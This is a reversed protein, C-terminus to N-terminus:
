SIAKFRAFDDSHNSCQTFGAEPLHRGGCFPCLVTGSVAPLEIKGLNVLLLFQSFVYDSPWPYVDPQFQGLREKWVHHVCEVGLAQELSMEEVSRGWFIAFRGDALATIGALPTGGYLFPELVAKFASDELLKHTIVMQSGSSASGIYLAGAGSMVTLLRQVRARELDVDVDAM